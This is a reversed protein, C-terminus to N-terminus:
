YIVTYYQLYITTSYPLPVKKPIKSSAANESQIDLAAGRGCPPYIM